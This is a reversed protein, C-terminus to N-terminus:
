SIQGTTAYVLLLQAIAGTIWAHRNILESWHMLRGRSLSDQQELTDRIESVMDKLAETDEGGRSEIEQELDGFTFNPQLIQAHAQTGINSGYTDGFINFIPGRHLESAAEQAAKYEQETQYSARLFAPRREYMQVDMDKVYFRHGSDAKLWDGSRVDKGPEFLVEKKRHDRIGRVTFLEDGREVAFTEGERHMHDKIRVNRVVEEVL